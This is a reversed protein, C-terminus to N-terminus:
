NLAWGPLSLELNDPLGPWRGSELCNALRAKMAHYKNWAHEQAEPDLSIVRVLYPATKEVFIFVFPRWDSLVQNVGDQYMAQSVAYGRDAFARTIAHDSVSQCSKLDSCFDGNLYDPRCRLNMGTASDKWFVSQEAEGGELLSVATENKAVAQAMDILAQLEEPAVMSIGSQQEFLGNWNNAPNTIIENGNAGLDTFWDAWSQRDAKSRRACDLGVKFEALFEDRELIWKHIASGIRFCEKFEPPSDIQHKARAPVDMMKILSSSYSGVDAHYDANPIDSYIGPAMGATKKLAQM